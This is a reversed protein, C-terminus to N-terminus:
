LDKILVVDSSQTGRSVAIQKGDHSFDFWFIRDSKFNTLPKVPGGDIPQVVINSTGNQTDTYALGRGDATWAVPLEFTPALAYSHVLTSGDPSFVGLHWQSNGADRFFAAISDGTPSVAVHSLLKDSLRAPEGSGDSAIRWSTRNKTQAASYYIWKGDPSFSPSQEGDRGNTIQRQGSGDSNMRWLHPTGSRDSLFVIENGDPSFAPQRNVRANSTLQKLGSGDSNVIWVDENGSADSSFVIKTGDRSISLSMDAKGAGTTVTRASSSDNPPSLWINAQTVRKVVALSRSDSTLSMWEYDDLDNTLQKAEGDPYSLQWVQYVFKQEAPALMLLSKGDAM